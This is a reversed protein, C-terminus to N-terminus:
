RARQSRTADPRVRRALFAAVALFAFGLRVQWWVPGDVWRTGQLLGHVHSLDWGIVGAITLWLGLVSATIVRQYRYRPSGSRTRSHLRNSVIGTLLIVALLAILASDM